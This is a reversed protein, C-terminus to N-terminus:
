RILTTNGKRKIEQGSYCKAKLYWAFVAPDAKMGNYIGDWGKNIDNTEFVLQGWRNYVAFYLDSINTGRVFLKDNKGDENPTFTNPVFVSEPPCKNSIVYITVTATKSCGDANSITVTYTTTATPSAYPNYIAANNLSNSPSWAITFATDTTNAHIYTGKEADTLTDDDATATLPYTAPNFVNVNVSASQLCTDGLTSVTKINVTYTTAVIPTAIPNSITPNNLGTTPIWSYEFGGSANLQTSGGLCINSSSTATVAPLVPAKIQYSVTDKCGYINSAVLTIDYMGATSYAHSPNQLNSISGDDFDWSWAIPNIASSDNFTVLPSCPITVFDFDAKIHPYVTVITYATDRKNCTATDNVYLYITYTGPITFPRSPNFVTSTTDNNGFDWLYDGGTTSQNYFNVTLPACGSAYNTIFNAKTIPVQFDFKFTGNNCRNGTLAHNVNAGTNPWAGSTVPFDNKGGCGACVSQYVIGKKDFRSTGGDVHEKSQAGGFYTAYFLSAADTSLVILYFNFGDTTPQIANATIPMNITAVGGQLVNGGWGSVYINECNDVLFASPSINVNGNGNGFRTSFLISSLNPNMKWIFQGSNPNNYVGASIPMNGTSQGVIYVDDDQDLQVFFSQDYVNTGVFTSNLISTGDNKIRTVFGDTGGKYTTSISGTTTPFNFSATGGTVYVNNLGDLALAYCDDDNSGGIYTSWLMSTLDPNLKFVIGDLKGAITPQVVGTTTPFDTSYSCSAIYFNGRGDVQIEGRYTDGYNYALSSLDSNAGDNLSGGVYTCALLSSGSVNFKAVYIDTGNNFATGNAVYNFATGGAFTNDYANATIPFDSSGTVGFLMLEDQANVILSNVTETSTAGGLYTSYLLTTGTSNYKTIVVDTRGALYTSAGNWTPDYAGLTVPFGAGFVTGGSYLNGQSDYTATMGFNDTLSGSSCAFVLIPDIVLEFKKDYGRPFSFKVTTNELVFQCPVEVKQGEIWQYAFPKQEVQENLSTKFTLAGNTLTIKDVGEYALQIANADAMPAVYFNYKISNDFGLVQFNIGNYLNEYVVEKYNKVNGAWKSPDNGIFYNSYDLSPDKSVLKPNANAGSFTMRFAHFKIPKPLEGSRLLHNSRLTGKDYFNYTFCNKELFLSGGDLQAKFLINSEWQNKNETFRILSQQVEASKVVIDAFGPFSIIWCFLISFFFPKIIYNM